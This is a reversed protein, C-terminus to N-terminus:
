EEFKIDGYNKCSDSSIFSGIKIYIRRYSNTFGYGSVNISYGYTGPNITTDNVVVLTDAGSRLFYM